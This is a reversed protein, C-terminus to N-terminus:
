GSAMAIREASIRSAARSPLLTASMMASRAGGDERALVHHVAHRLHDMFHLHFRRKRVAGLQDRNVIRNLLLQSHMRSFVNEAVAVDFQVGAPGRRPHHHAVGAVARHLHAAVIMEEFHVGREIEVACRSVAHAQINCGAGRDAKLRAFFLFHRQHCEAAAAGHVPVVALHVSRQLRALTLTLDRAASVGVQVARSGAVAHAQGVGLQDDFHLLIVGDVAVLDREAAALHNAVAHALAGGGRALGLVAREIQHDGVRQDDIVPADHLGIDANAVPADHLDALRAIGVRLGADIGIQHDARGGFHDRAFALDDGGARDISVDVEDRRLLDVLRQRVAGGGHDAASGTRGGAGVRGGARRAAPIQFLHKARGFRPRHVESEQPLSVGGRALRQGLLNQRAGAAQLQM